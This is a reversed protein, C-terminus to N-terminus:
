QRRRYESPSCGVARKFVVSLHSATKFGTGDAIKRLSQDTHELLRKVQDLQVRLIEERPTRGLRQAFRRELTARSVCVHELVDEVTIGALANRRIFSLADALDEDDVAAIDTSQRTMVGAPEILIPRGPPQEGAMMRDLLVAAEYGIRPANLDISSMPPSALADLVQDHDVGLVAVKEPVAVGADRCADILRLGCVDNAALVAVPKPLNQVWDVLDRLQTEWGAQGRGARVSREHCSLGRGALQACFANRRWEVWPAEEVTCFGFNAFGRELFHEIAVRAVAEEDAYVLPFGHGTVHSNTDVAPLGARRIADVMTRNFSRFIIGDGKWDALWSPQRDHLAREEVYLTWRGLTTAYRGIGTLLGRGYAKSTEIM